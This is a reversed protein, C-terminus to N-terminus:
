KKRAILRVQDNEGHDWLPYQPAPGTTIKEIVFGMREFLMALQGSNFVNFYPKPLIQKHLEYIDLAEQTPPVVAFIEREIELINEIPTFYDPRKQRQKARQEKLDIPELFKANESCCTIVAKGGSILLRHLEWVTAILEAHNLFHFVESCLIGSFTCDNFPINEPLSLHHFSLEPRLSYQLILANVTDISLETAYVRAGADLAQITNKCNGCGIDLLPHESDWCQIWDEVLVNVGEFTVGGVHAVPNFLPKEKEATSSM